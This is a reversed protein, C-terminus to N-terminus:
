AFYEKRRLFTFYEINSILILSISFYAFAFLQKYQEGYINMAFDTSYILGLMYLAFVIFALVVITLLQLAVHMKSFMKGLNSGAEFFQMVTTLMMINTLKSFIDTNTGDFFGSLLMLILLILMNGFNFLTKSLYIQKISLPLFTNLFYRKQKKQYFSTMMITPSAIIWPDGPYTPLSLAPLVWKLIVYWLLSIFWYYAIHKTNHKIEIMLFRLANNLGVTM